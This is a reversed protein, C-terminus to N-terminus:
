RRGLVNDAHDPWVWNRCNLKTILLTDISVAVEVSRTYKRSDFYLKALM